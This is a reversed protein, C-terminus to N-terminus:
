RCDFSSHKQFITQMNFYITPMLNANSRWTLQNVTSTGPLRTEFVFVLSNLLYLFCHSGIRLSFIYWNYIRLMWPDPVTSCQHSQQRTGHQCHTVWKGKWSEREHWAHRQWIFSVQVRGRWFMSSGKTEFSHRSNWVWFFSWLLILIMPYRRM